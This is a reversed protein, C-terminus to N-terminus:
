KFNFKVTFMVQSPRLQIRTYRIANFQGDLDYTEFVRRNGVNMWKIEFDVKKKAWSFQYSIDYFPNNYKNTGNTTNVQDWNFGITHNEIPYFFM